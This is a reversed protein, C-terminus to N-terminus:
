YDQMTESFCIKLSKNKLYKEIAKDVVKSWSILWIFLRFTILIDVYFNIFMSNIVNFINNSFKM